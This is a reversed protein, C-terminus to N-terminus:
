IIVFECGKETEYARWSILVLVSKEKKKRKILVFKKAFVQKASFM